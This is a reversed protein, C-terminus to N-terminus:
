DGQSLNERGIIQPSLISWDRNTYVHLTWTVWISVRKRWTPFPLDIVRGGVSKLRKKAPYQHTINRKNSPYMLRNNKTLLVLLHRKQGNLDINKQKGSTRPSVDISVAHGIHVLFGKLLRAQSATDNHIEVMVYIVIMMAQFLGRVSNLLGKGAVEDFCVLDSSVVFYYSCVMVITGRATRTNPLLQDWRVM